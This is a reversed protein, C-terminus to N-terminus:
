RSYSYPGYLLQQHQGKPDYRFVGTQGDRGKVRLLFEKDITPNGRQM